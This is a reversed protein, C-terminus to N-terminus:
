QHEEFSDAEKESINTESKTNLIDTMEWGNKEIFDDISSFKNELLLIESLLENMRSDIGELKDSYEQHLKAINMFEAILKDKKESINEPTEMDSINLKQNLQIAVTMKNDKGKKTRTKTKTKTKAKTKNKKLKTKQTKQPKQSKQKSNKAM